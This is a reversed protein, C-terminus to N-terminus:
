RLVVALGGVGYKRRGEKRRGQSAVELRFDFLLLSQRDSPM